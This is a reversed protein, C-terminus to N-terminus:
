QLQLEHLSPFRNRDSRISRGRTSVTVDSHLYFSICGGIAVLGAFAPWPRFAPWLLAFVAVVGLTARAWGARSFTVLSGAAIILAAAAFWARRTVWAAAVALPLVINLYGAFPNPQGFTGFARLFRGYIVFNHPGAHFAFQLLGAAAESVGASITAVIVIWVDQLSRLYSPALAAVALLELWKVIEKASLSLSVAQTTSVVMVGVLLAVAITWPTVSIELKRTSAFRAVANLVLAAVMVDSITLQGSGPLPLASAWPVTFPLLFYAIRPQWLVVGASTACFILAAAREVPLLVIMSIALAAAVCIAACLARSSRLAGLDLDPWSSSMAVHNDRNM